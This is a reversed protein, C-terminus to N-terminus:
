LVDPERRQYQVLNSSLEITSGCLGPWSPVINSEPQSIPCQPHDLHERTFQAGDDPPWTTDDMTSYTSIWPESFTWNLCGPNMSMFPLATFDGSLQHHNHDYGHQTWDAYEGSISFASTSSEEIRSMHLPSSSILSQGWPLADLDKSAPTHNRRPRHSGSTDEKEETCKDDGLVAKVYRDLSSAASLEQSDSSSGSQWTKSRESHYQRSAMFDLELKQVLAQRLPSRPHPPPKGAQPNRRRRKM